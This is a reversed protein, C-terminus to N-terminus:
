CRERTCFFQYCKPVLDRTKHAFTVGIVLLVGHVTVITQTAKAVRRGSLFIRSSGCSRDGHGGLM